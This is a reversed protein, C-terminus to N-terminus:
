GDDSVNLIEAKVEFLENDQCVKRIGGGLYVKKIKELGNM